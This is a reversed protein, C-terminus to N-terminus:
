ETQPHKLGLIKGEQQLPATKIRPGKGNMEVRRTLNKISALLLNSSVPRILIDDAGADLANTVTSQEDITSIALIPVKCNIRLQQCLNLVDPNHISWDLIM